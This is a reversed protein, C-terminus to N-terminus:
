RLRHEVVVEQDLGVPEPLHVRASRRRKDGGDEGHEVRPLALAHEVQIGTDSEEDAEQGVGDAGPGADDRDLGVAGGGACEFSFRADWWPATM